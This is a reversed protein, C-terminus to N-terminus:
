QRRKWLTEGWGTVPVFYTRIYTQDDYSLLAMRNSDGQYIYRTKKAELVDRLVPPKQSLYPVFSGFPVCCIYYADKWALMRGELDLVEESRPIASMLLNLQEMQATNSWYIKVQNVQINVTALLYSGIVLIACVGFFPVIHDIKRFISIVADACYYAVFLAIPILYQSHKLPFFTVYGLVSLVFVGSILLEALVRRRDGDVTIFPIFLRVTGTIIAIIWIAHNFILATSILSTGGYFSGNPFFFLDPNMYGFKGSMNAELSMKTLSYLAKPLNGTFPLWLLFIGLPIGLGFGFASIEPPIKKKMLNKIWVRITEGKGWWSYLFLVGTGAAVFPITKVFVILSAMYAFGSWFWLCKADRTSLLAIVQLVLGAFAALTALNDPRVEMLKDYPMPLFALLVVPLLAFRVSRTKGFLVGLLVLMAVFIFFSVVRAAIFLGPGFSFILILPAFFWLFGPTFGIFYDTYPRQGRAFNAAWHLYSFEDVDFFRHLGVQLRWYLLFLLLAGLIVYPYYKLVVKGDIRM